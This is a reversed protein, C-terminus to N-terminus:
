PPPLVSIYDGPEPRLRPRKRHVVTGISVFCVAQECERLSFLARLGASQLAKGSTLSSGFGMATAVLLMNQVACGASLIRESAPIEAGPSGVDVVALLLVPSRFAKERAKAVEEATARSDRELLSAVFVDALRARAEVPIIVFRWPLLEGHDPASAAARFILDLQGADPGPEGLRKPLITQRHEVLTAAWSPTGPEGLWPRRAPPDTADAM